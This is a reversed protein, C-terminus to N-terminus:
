RSTQGQGVGAATWVASGAPTPLGEATLKAALARLSPSGDPALRTIIPALDAARAPPPAEPRAVTPAMRRPRPTYGRFGGLKQGRAKAAALSRKTREGIMGAGLEAVSAMQQLIFRGTAGEISPLDVFRIEVDAELLRSLFAVSRTLRSVNAVVLAARYARCM